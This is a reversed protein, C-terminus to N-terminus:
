SSMVNMVGTPEFPPMEVIAMQDAFRLRVTEFQHNRHVLINPILLRKGALAYADENQLTM